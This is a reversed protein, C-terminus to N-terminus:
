WQIEMTAAGIMNNQIRKLKQFPEDIMSYNNTKYSEEIEQFLQNAIKLDRDADNKRNNWLNERSKERDDGYKNCNQRNEYKIIFQDYLECCSRFLKQAQEYQMTANKEINEKQRLKHSRNIYYDVGFLVGVSVIAISFVVIVIKKSIKKM